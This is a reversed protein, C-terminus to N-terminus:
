LLHIFIKVQEIIAHFNTHKRRAPMKFKATLPQLTQSMSIVTPYESVLNVFM